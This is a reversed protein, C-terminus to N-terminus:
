VGLEDGEADEIKDGYRKLIPKIEEEYFEVVQEPARGIFTKQDLIEDLRSLIPKFYEDGKLREILDNDRGHIKVQAGAAQSLIRIREHCEERVGGAKVM